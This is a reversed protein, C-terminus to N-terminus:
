KNIEKSPIGAPPNVRDEWPKRDQFVWEFGHSRKPFYEGYFPIEGTAKNIVVLYQAAMLDRYTKANEDTSIPSFWNHGFVIFYYDPYKQSFITNLIQPDTIKYNRKEQVTIIKRKAVLKAESVSVGDSYDVKEEYNRVIDERSACSTLGVLALVVLLFARMSEETILGNISKLNALSQGGTL